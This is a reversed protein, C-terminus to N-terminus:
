KLLLMKKMKVLNGAQIQYFYVGTSVMIGSNNLGHWVIFHSGSNLYKKDFLAQVEAGLINYIKITVESSEPLEYRITTSLNFPNPYNDQLLFEDISGIVQDYEWFEGVSSYLGTGIYGKSGINFSFAGDARYGSSDIQTWSDSVPDYAWFDKPFIGGGANGLGIYGKDGISFGVAGGRPSGPFDAKESWQNTAPDYEWFESTFEFRAFGTGIYGKTGIAFGVLNLRGSGPFNAKELWRDSLPDYESFNYDIFSAKIYGRSGISFSVLSGRSAFDIRIDAKQTWQDTQPNYEWFDNHLGQTNTLGGGIYGKGNISFGVAGERGPAPLDALQQWTDSDPNYEWLDNNRKGPALGTGIYGKNGISFAAARYRFEAFDSRRIWSEQASIISQFFLLVIFILSFIRM